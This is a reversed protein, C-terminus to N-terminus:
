VATGLAARPTAETRSSQEGCITQKSDSGGGLRRRAVSLAAEAAANLPILTDLAATQDRGGTGSCCADLAAELSPMTNAALQLACASQAHYGAATWYAPRGAACAALAYHRALADDNDHRRIAALLRRRGNDAFAHRFSSVLDGRTLDLPHATM